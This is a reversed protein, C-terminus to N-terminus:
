DFAIPHCLLKLCGGGRGGGAGRLGEVGGITDKLFEQMYHSFGFKHSHNERLIWPHFFKFISQTSLGDFGVM